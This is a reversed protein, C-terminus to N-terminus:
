VVLHSSVGAATIVYDDWGPVKLMHILVYLRTAITIVMLVLLSTGVGLLTRYNSQESLEPSANYVWTASM